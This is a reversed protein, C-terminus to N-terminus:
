KTTAGFQSFPVWKVDEGSMAAIQQYLGTESLVTVGCKKAAEVKTAGPKSGEVVCFIGAKVASGVSAGYYSLFRDLEKETM